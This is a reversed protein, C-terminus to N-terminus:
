TLRRAMCCTVDRSARHSDEDENLSQDCQACFSFPLVRPSSRCLVCTDPAGSAAMAKDLSDRVFGDADIDVHSSRPAVADSSGSDESWSPSGSSSSTSTAMTAARTTARETAFLMEGGKDAEVDFDVDPLVDAEVRAPCLRAVANELEELVRDIRANVVLLRSEIAAKHDSLSSGIEDRHAQAMENLRSSAAEVRRDGDDM